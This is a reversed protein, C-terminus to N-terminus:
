EEQLAATLAQEEEAALNVISNGDIIEKIYSYCGERSHVVNIIFGNNNENLMCLAFSLKGGLEQLADYKIMGYKRFNERSKRVLTELNRENAANAELLNDVTSLKDILTDELSRGNNGEMFAEYAKRVKKMKIGSSIMICILILVLAALGIVVYDTHIGLYNNILSETMNVGTSLLGNDM